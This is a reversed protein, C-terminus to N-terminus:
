STIYVHIIIMIIIHIISDIRILHDDFFFQSVFSIAHQQAFLKPDPLIIEPSHIDTHTQKNWFFFNQKYVVSCFFLIFDSILLLRHDYMAVFVDLPLLLFNYVFFFKKWMVFWVFCFSFIFEGTVMMVSHHHYYLKKKRM